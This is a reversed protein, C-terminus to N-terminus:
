KCLWSKQKRTILEQESLWSGENVYNVRIGRIRMVLKKGNTYGTRKMRTVMGRMRMVLRENVYSVRM